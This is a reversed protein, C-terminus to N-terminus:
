YHVGKKPARGTSLLHQYAWYWDTGYEVQAWRKISNEYQHKYVINRIFNKM